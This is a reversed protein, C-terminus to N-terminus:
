TVSHFTIYSSMIVKRAVIYVLNLAFTSRSHALQSQTLWDRYNSIDRRLRHVLMTGSEAKTIKNDCQFIKPSRIWNFTWPNLLRVCELNVLM